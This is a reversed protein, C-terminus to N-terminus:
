LRQGQKELPSGNPGWWLDPRNPIIWNDSLYRDAAVIAEKTSKQSSWAYGEANVVAINQLLYEVGGCLVTLQFILNAVSGVWQHQHYKLVLTFKDVRLKNGQPSFLFSPLMGPREHSTEASIAWPNPEFPQLIGNFDPENECRWDYAVMMSDSLNSPM